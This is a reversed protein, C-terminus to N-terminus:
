GAGAAAHAALGLRAECRYLPRRCQRKGGTGSPSVGRRPEGEEEKNEGQNAEIVQSIQASIKMKLIQIFTVEVNTDIYNLM